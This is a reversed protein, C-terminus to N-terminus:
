ERFQRTGATMANLTNGFITSRVVINPIVLYLLDVIGKTNSTSGSQPTLNVEPASQWNHRWRSKVSVALSHYHSLLIQFEMHFLLSNQRFQLQLSHQLRYIIVPNNYWFFSNKQRKNQKGPNKNL